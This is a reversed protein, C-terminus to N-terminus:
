KKKKKNQHNNNQIESKQNEKKEDLIQSYCNMAKIIADKRDKDNGKILFHEPSAEFHVLANLNRWSNYVRNRQELDTLVFNILEKGKRYGNSSADKQKEYKRIQGEFKGRIVAAIAQFNPKNINMAKNIDKRWDDSILLAKEIQEDIPALDYFDEESKTFFDTAQKKYHETLKDKLKDFLTKLILVEKRFINWDKPISYSYYNEFGLTKLKELERSYDSYIAFLNSKHFITKIKDQELLENYLKALELAEITALENISLLTNVIENTNKNLEAIDKISEKQRERPAIFLILQVTGKETLLSKYQTYVENFLKLYNAPSYDEDFLPITFGNETLETYKFILTKESETIGAFVYNEDNAVEYFYNEKCEFLANESAVNFSKNNGFCVKMKIPQNLKTAITVNEFNLNNHPVKLYLFMKDRLSEKVSKPLNLFANLISDSRHTFSLKNNEINVEINDRLYVIKTPAIHMDLIKTKNNASPIFKTIQNSIIKTFKEILVQENEDNRIDVVIAENENQLQSKEITTLQNSLHEFIFEGQFNKTEEIIEKSYYTEEGMKTLDFHSVDAELFCDESYESGIIKPQENILTQLREEFINHLDAPIELILLVESINKERFQQKRKIIEMLTLAFFDIKQPAAYQFQIQYKDNAVALRINGLKKM